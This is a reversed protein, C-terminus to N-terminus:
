YKNLALYRSLLASCVLGQNCQNSEELMKKLSAVQYMNFLIFSSCWVVSFSVEEPGPGRELESKLREIEELLVQTNAGSAEHHGDEVKIPSKSLESQRPESKM